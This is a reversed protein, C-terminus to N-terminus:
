ALLLRNVRHPGTVIGRILLCQVTTGVNFSDSLCYSRLTSGLM